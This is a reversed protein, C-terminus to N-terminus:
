AVFPLWLYLAVNALGHAVVVGVLSRTRWVVWGFYVGVGFVFLLDLVSQFGIHMVAFLAAVYLLGPAVGLVSQGAPQLLGRFILEEALGTAVGLILAAPLLAALTFESIWAEPRLIFFEAAGLALGSVGVVAQVPVERPALWRFGTDRPRLGLVVMLTGAGALLPVAMILLWPLVTFPTFPLGLSLIRILPVLSLIALFRSLTADAPALLSAHSLLAFLLLVHLGMGLLADDATRAYAVLVEAAVLLGLYALLAAPARGTLRPTGHVTAEEM